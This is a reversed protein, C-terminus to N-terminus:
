NNITSNSVLYPYPDITKGKIIIEFHLHPGTSWGTSGVKLVPDGRKVKDGVDAILESGHAYLTSIGGGHNVIVMNGYSTSYTSKTVIGDNAAVAYAGLPAGIDMGTHLRYIKLIPHLRMGYPSTITYYGPTPWAFTGGVYESGSNEMAAILIELDILDLEDQYLELDEKIKLEEATLKNIYSNKLIKSNELSIEITKQNLKSDKLKQREEELEKNVTEIKAKQEGISELLEQDYRAMEGILYYRSIFDTISKANLLVDLYRTPGAEYQSVIRTELLNKQYNYNQELENLLTVTEEIKIEVENLDQSIAKIQEEYEYIKEDIKNIEELHETLEVEINEINKGAADIKAKLEARKQELETPTLANTITYGCMLILIATIVTICIKKM